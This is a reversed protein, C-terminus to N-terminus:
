RKWNKKRFSITDMERRIYFGVGAQNTTNKVSSTPDNARKWFAQVKVRGDATINYIAKVEVPNQSEAKAATAGSFGLELKDKYLKKRVNLELQDRQETTVSSWNVGVEWGPVDKLMQNMYKNLIGSVSNSLSQTGLGGVDLTETGSSSVFTGLALVAFFQRNLEDENSEIERMRAMFESPRSVNSSIDPFDLGFKIDPSFLEGRLFLQCDVPIPKYYDAQESGSFLASPDATKRVTAEMDIRAKYPDGDWSIRGGKKFIFNESVFLANYPYSGEEVTYDGFMYFDGFSNIEMRITGTGKGTIIDGTGEDFILDIQALPTVEFALDMTFGEIKQRVEKQASEDEDLEVFQIYSVTTNTNESELPIKIHTGKKSKANVKVYVNDIPGTVEVSGDVVATGYFYDNDKRTTKMAIFDKLETVKVDMVLNSFQKHSVSGKLKGTHGKEDSITNDRIIIQDKKLEVTGSVTYDAKFYDIIMSVDELYVKGSVEPADFTGAVLLNLSVTGELDTLEGGLFPEFPKVSGHTMNVKLNMKQVDPHMNLDGAVKIDKFMGKNMSGEVSLMLPDDKRSLALLSVDGLTDGNLYFNMTQLDGSFVPGDMAKLINVHGNTRGAIEIGSSGLLPNLNNLEFEELEILLSDTISKGAIGNVHISQGMDFLRLNAIRVQDGTYVVENNNGIDWKRGNVFIMSEELKLNITDGSFSALGYSRLAIDDETEAFNFLFDIQNPLISANLIANTTLLERKDYIADVLVSMNLLDAPEKIVNLDIREFLTEGYKLMSVKADATLSRKLSSYKGIFIGPGVIFQSDLLVTLFDSKNVRIRFDIDVPSDLPKQVEYYEPFLDALFVDYVQAIDNMDYKGSMQVDVVDSYLSLYRSTDQKGAFLEVANLEVDRGDRKISINSVKLTGDLDNLGTGTMECGIGAKITTPVNDLGLALLDLHDIDLFFNYYPTTSKLDVKGEFTIRANEDEISAKGIFKSTNYDGEIIIDKYDYGGIQAHFIEGKFIAHLDKQSVGKGEDLVLSLSTTGLSSEDFIKGLDLETVKLKGSYKEPSDDKIAFLLETEIEGADSTVKGEVYFDNLKGRFQGKAICNGMRILQDPMENVGFSKKVDEGNFILEDFRISMESNEYDPMGKIEVDGKFSGNDGFKLISNRAKFDAVTGNYDTSIVLHQEKYPLLDNTFWAIDKIALDSQNLHANVQVSDIFYGLMGYGDYSMIINDSIESDPTKLRMDEFSLTTSSIKTRSRFESIEFGSHDKAELDRVHFSLSDNILTFNRIVANIGTVVMNNENFIRYESPEDNNKDRYIFRSNNLTLRDAFAVWVPADPDPVEPTVFDILFQINLDKEGEHTVLYVKAEDIDLNRLKIMHKERDIDRLAVRLKGIFFMTDKNLDRVLIDNLVAYDPFNIEVSGVSTETGLSHSLSNAVKKVIFTQVAPIQILGFISATLFLLMALFWLGIKRIKSRKNM